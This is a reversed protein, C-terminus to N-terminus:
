QIMPQPCPYALVPLEPGADIPRPLCPQSVQEIRLAASVSLNEVRSDTDDTKVHKRSSYQCLQNSTKDSETGSAWTTITQFTTRNATHRSIWWPGWSTLLNMLLGHEWSFLDVLLSSFSIPRSNCCRCVFSGLLIEQFCDNLPTKVAELFTKVSVGCLVCLCIYASVFFFLTREWDRWFHYNIFVEFLPRFNKIIRSQKKHFIRTRRVTQRAQLEFLFRAASKMCIRWGLIFFLMVMQSILVDHKGTEIM